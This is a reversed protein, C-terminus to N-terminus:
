ARLVSFNRISPYAHKGASQGDRAQGPTLDVAAPKRGEKGSFHIVEEPCIAQCDMCEICEGHDTM